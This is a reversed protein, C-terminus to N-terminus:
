QDADATSTRVEERDTAGDKITRVLSGQQADVLVVTESKDGATLYRGDPSYALNINSGPTHIVNAAAPARLDWLRVTKDTSGTALLAPHAPSCAVASIQDSHGVLEKSSRVDHQTLFAVYAESPTGCVRLATTGM